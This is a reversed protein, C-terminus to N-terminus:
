EIFVGEPTIGPSEDASKKLIVETMSRILSRKPDFFDSRIRSAHQAVSTREAGCEKEEDLESLFFLIDLIKRNFNYNQTKKEDLFKGLSNVDGITVPYVRFGEAAARYVRGLFNCFAMLTQKSLANKPYMGLIEFMNRLVYANPVRIFDFFKAAVFGSMLADVAYQNNTKLIRLYLPIHEYSLPKKNLFNAYAYLASSSRVDKCEIIEFMMDQIFCNFEEKAM